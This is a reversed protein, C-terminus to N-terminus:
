YSCTALYTVFVVPMAKSFFTQGRLSCPALPVSFEPKRKSMKPEFLVAVFSPVLLCYEEALMIRGHKGALIAVVVATQLHQSLSHLSSPPLAVANGHMCVHTCM